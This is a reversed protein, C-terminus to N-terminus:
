AESIPIMGLMRLKAEFSMRTMEKTMIDGKQDNTDAKELVIRQELEDESGDDEPRLREHLFGL